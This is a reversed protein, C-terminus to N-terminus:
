GRTHHAECITRAFAGIGENRRLAGPEGCVECIHVSEKEYGFSVEEMQDFYEHKSPTFYYRLMGFKEKIQVIKYAPDMAYLAEHCRTILDSWGYGCDIGRYQEEIDPDWQNLLFDFEKDKWICNYIKDPTM